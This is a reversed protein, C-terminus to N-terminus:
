FNLNRDCPYINRVDDHEFTLFLARGQSKRNVSAKMKKSSGGVCLVHEVTTNIGARM